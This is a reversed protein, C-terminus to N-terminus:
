LKSWTYRFNDQLVVAERHYQDRKKILTNSGNATLAGLGSLLHKYLGATNRGANFKNELIYLQIWRIAISYQKAPDAVEPYVLPTKGPFVNNLRFTPKIRDVIEFVFVLPSTRNVFKINLLCRNLHKNIKKKKGNKVFANNFKNIWYSCYVGDVLM